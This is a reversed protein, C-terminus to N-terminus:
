REETDPASTGDAPDTHPELDDAEDTEDPETEGDSDEPVVVGIASRAVKVDVGPALQVLLHSDAVGTVVGFIGSTLVVEDGVAIASQMQTTAKQRRSAPAIVFLWFVVVIAIIPLLSVLDGM